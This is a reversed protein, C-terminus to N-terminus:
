GVMKAVKAAKETQDRQRYIKTTEISAHGLHASAGDIGAADEAREEAARRLQKLTWYKVKALAIAAQLAQRYGDYTYCLEDPRTRRTPPFIYADPEAMMLWPALLQQARPGIAIARDLGRWKNKHNTPRFIWIGDKRTQDIECRKMELVESPRLAAYYTVQIMTRIVPAMHVLCPVVQIEYDLPRIPPPDYTKANNAQLKIKKASTFLHGHTGPPLIQAIVEAWEFPRILREIQKNIYPRSWTSRPQSKEEKDMWRRDIMAAQVEILRAARFEAAITDGFLRIAPECARRIMQVEHHRPGRPEATLWRAVLENITLVSGSLKPGRIDALVGAAHEARLREYEVYSEDSGHRGLYYEKGGIKIRAGHGHKRPSKPYVPFPRPRPM